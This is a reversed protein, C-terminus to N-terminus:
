LLIRSRTEDGDLTRLTCLEGIEKNVGLKEFQSFGTFSSTPSLSRARAQFDWGILLFKPRGLHIVMGTSPRTHWIDPAIFDLSPAFRQWVDLVTVTAGGSPYASPYGGGGAVILIDDDSDKSVYKQWVSIYLSVPYKKKGAASVQNLYQAYHYTM